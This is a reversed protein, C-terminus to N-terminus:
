ANIWYGTGFCSRVAQYVLRKNNYIEIIQKGNLYIGIIEKGDKFIM